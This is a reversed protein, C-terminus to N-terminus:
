RRRRAARRSDTARPSGGDNDSMVSRARHTRRRHRHPEDTTDHRGSSEGAGCLLLSYGHAAARAEAGRIVIDTYLLSAEEVALVNNDLATQMFVLGLIWHKGSSLRRAVSNPVFELERMAAFVKDRTAPRVSSLSNLARSVTAISVGARKRWTMSRRSHILWENGWHTLKSCRAGMYDSVFYMDRDSRTLLTFTAKELLPVQGFNEPARHSTALSAERLIAGNAAESEPSAFLNVVKNERNRRNHITSNRRGMRPHFVTRSYWSKTPPCHHLPPAPVM